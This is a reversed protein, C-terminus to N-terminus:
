CFYELSDDYPLYIGHAVYQSALIHRSGWEIEQGQPSIQVGTAAAPAEPGVVSTDNIVGNPAQRRM